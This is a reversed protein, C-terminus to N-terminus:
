ITVERKTAVTFVTVIRNLMYAAQDIDEIVLGTMRELSEIQGLFDVVENFVMSNVRAEKEGKSRGGIEAGYKLLLMDRLMQLQQGIQNSVRHYRLLKDTLDSRRCQDDVNAEVLKDQSRAIAARLKRVKRGESISIVTAAEAEINLRWFPNTKFEALFSQVQKHNQITKKITM